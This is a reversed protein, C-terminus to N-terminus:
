EYRLSTVPNTAAAKIAQFSVTLWAIVVAAVGSMIFIWLSIDTRHAFGALWQDAGYWAAVAAPVFAIIVLRIFEASLIMTLNLSTAGMAKRIGIEKTRQESTFAALAFLGLCAVFIALAAFIGFIKGMREDGRFLNDFREDLFSYEFPENAAHTKWIKEVSEILNKPNGEYRIM